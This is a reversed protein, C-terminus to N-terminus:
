KAAEESYLQLILTWGNPSDVSQRAEDAREGMRELYRHELNVRTGGDEATFLV